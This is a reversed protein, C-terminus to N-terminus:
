AAKVEYWDGDKVVTYGEPVIIEGEGVEANSPDFQYFRGGKVTIKANSGDKCNLTWKPTVCKFTGGNIIIETTPNEAKGDAYILDFHSDHDAPVGVQRFDGGNIIVTGKEAWVAVAEHWLVWEGNQLTEFEEYESYVDANITTKGGLVEITGDKGSGQTNQDIVRNAANTTIRGLRTAAKEDYMNNFSDNEVTAQTAYVELGLDYIKATWGKSKANAENGVTTPMYIVVAMVPTSEGGNLVSWGDTLQVGKTLPKEVASIADWAQQRNEFPTVNSALGIKLYNGLSFKNGLVNKGQTERYNHAFETSYKLALSGNNVIKLYVYQTYGPEWLANDDFLPTDKNAEAWQVGDKSYMLKVDLNGSVIKNVGTTATDTFWAFTSGILMALCVVMALVSTLLARKTNKSNM